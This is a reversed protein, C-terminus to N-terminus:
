HIQWGIREEIRRIYPGYWRAGTRSTFARLGAAGLNHASLAMKLAVGRPQRVRYYEYHRSINWTGVELSHRWCMLERKKCQKGGHVKHWEMDTALSNQCLGFSIEVGDMREITRPRWHSEVWVWEVLVYYPLAYYRCLAKLYREGDARKWKHRDTLVGGGTARCLFAVFLVALLYIKYRSHM